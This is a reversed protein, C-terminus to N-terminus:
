ELIRQSAVPAVSSRRLGHLTWKWVGVGAAADLRWYRVAMLVCVAVACLLILALHSLSFPVAHASNLVATM